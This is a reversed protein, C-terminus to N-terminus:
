IFPNNLLESLVIAKKLSFAEVKEGHIRIGDSDYSNNDGDDSLLEFKCDTINLKAEDQKTM